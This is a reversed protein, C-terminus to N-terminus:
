ASKENLWMGLGDPGRCLLITGDNLIITFASQSVRGNRSLELADRVFEPLIGLLNNGVFEADYFDFVFCCKNTLNPAMRRVITPKDAFLEFTGNFRLVPTDDIYVANSIAMPSATTDLNLLAKIPVYYNRRPNKESLFVWWFISRQFHGDSESRTGHMRKQSRELREIAELLRDVDVDRQIAARLLLARDAADGDDDTAFAHATAVSVKEMRDGVLRSSALRRTAGWTSTGALHQCAGVPQMLQQVRSRAHLMCQGARVPQISQWSRARKATCGGWVM